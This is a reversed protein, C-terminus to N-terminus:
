EVEVYGMIIQLAEDYGNSNYIRNLMESVKDGQGAAKLARTAIGMLNFINGDAGVLKAKPKQDEMNSEAKGKTPKTPAIKQVNKNYVMRCSKYM